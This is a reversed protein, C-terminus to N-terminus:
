NLSNEIEAIWKYAKEMSELNQTNIITIQVDVTFYM